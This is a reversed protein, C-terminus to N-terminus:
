TKEWVELCVLDMLRMNARAKGQKNWKKWIRHAGNQFNNHKKSQASQMKNLFFPLFFLALQLTESQELKRESYQVCECWDPWEHLELESRCTTKGELVRSVKIYNSHKHTHTHTLSLPISPTHTYASTISKPLAKTHRATSPLKAKYHTNVQKAEQVKRDCHQHHPPPLHSPSSETSNRLCKLLGENDQKTQVEHFENGYGAWEGGGGIGRGM